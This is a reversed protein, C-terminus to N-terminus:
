MGIINHVETPVWQVLALTCVGCGRPGYWYLINSNSPLFYNKNKIQKRACSRVCFIKVCRWLDWRRFSGLSVLAGWGWCSECWNWLWVRLKFEDQASDAEVVIYCSHFKHSHIGCAALGPHRKWCELCSAVWKNIKKIEDENTCDKEKGNGDFPHLAESRGNMQIEMEDMTGTPYEAAIWPSCFGMGVEVM